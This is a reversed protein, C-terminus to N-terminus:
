SAPDHEPPDDWEPLDTGWPHDKPLGVRDDQACRRMWGPLLVPADTTPQQLLDWRDEYRRWVDAKVWAQEISANRKGEFKPDTRWNQHDIWTGAAVHMRPVVYCHPASRPADVLAVFIYWEHDSEP